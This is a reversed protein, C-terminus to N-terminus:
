LRLDLREVRVFGGRGGLEQEAVVLQNGKEEAALQWRLFEAGQKILRRLVAVQTPATQSLKVLYALKERIDRDFYVTSRKTKGGM